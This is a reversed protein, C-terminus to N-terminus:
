EEQEDEGGRKRLMMLVQKRYAAEQKRMQFESSPIIQAHFDRYFLHLGTLMRTWEVRLIITLILSLIVGAISSYFATRIGSLLLQLSSVATTVSSFGINSIGTILGTFTGLLGIGTLMGSIQSAPEQNTFLALTDEDIMDEISVAYGDSEKQKKYEQKFDAFLTDLTHEYFLAEQQLIYNTQSDSEIERSREIQKRASLFGDTFKEVRLICYIFTCLLLSLMIGIMILTLWDPSYFMLVAGVLVFVIAITVSRKNM